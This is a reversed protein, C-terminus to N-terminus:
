KVINPHEYKELHKLAAIERVANVPVGYDDLTIKIKKLAVYRDQNSRDRGRYVTGYAGTINDFM